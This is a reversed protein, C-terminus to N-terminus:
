ESYFGFWSSAPEWFLYYGRFLKDALYNPATDTIRPSLPLNIAIPTANATYISVSPSNLWTNWGVVVTYTIDGVRISFSMASDALDPFRLRNETEDPNFKFSQSSILTM